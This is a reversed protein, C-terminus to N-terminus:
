VKMLKFFILGGKDIKENEGDIIKKVIPKFFFVFVKRLSSSLFWRNTLKKIIFSFIAFHALFDNTVCIKKSAYQRCEVIKFGNDEFLQTWTEQNYYHFHAWFNNFFKSYKLSLKKLGLGLLLQNIVNYKDFKDTPITVYM